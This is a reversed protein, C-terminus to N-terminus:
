KDTIVINKTFIHNDQELRIFYLGSHIDECHLSIKQGYINKIDKVIHGYVDYMSLHANNFMKDTTINTEASFPNPFITIESFPTNETIGSVVSGLKAVFIETPYTITDSNTLSLGGFYMPSSMFYGTVFSNGNQDICIGYGMDVNSGGAKQAWLANGSSDYKAVFVDPGGASFIANTGFSATGRFMGTIYSNGNADTKIDYPQDFNSGGARKAWVVNGLSNLKLLFIEDKDSPNTLSIGGFQAYTGNFYGTIYTNEAVDVGISPQYLSPYNGLSKAWVVNGAVDYKVVFIAQGGNSNNVITDSGFVVTDSLMIGTFYSNGHVDTCIDTIQEIFNDSHTQAQWLMNGANDYKVLVLEVGMFTSSSLTFAVYVNGNKDIDNSVNTMLALNEGAIKAWIVNGLSDYKAVFAIDFGANAPTATLTTTGFTSIGTGQFHGTVYSNGESDTNVCNGYVNNQGIASKAWVVNGVNDYKTLYFNDHFNTSGTLTDSGFIVSPVQFYGTAYCNGKTDTSLSTGYDHFAGLASKAWQWTPTQAHLFGNLALFLILWQTKNM